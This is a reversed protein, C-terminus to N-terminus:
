DQEQGVAEASPPLGQEARIRDAEAYVADIATANAGVNRYEVLFAWGNVLLTLTALAAHIEWRWRHMQAGLGAAAAAIPVLMAALAVPFTRRKLERTLKPWPEGPLGYALAVEKVWRGTGLFYIFILCHVALPGLIVTFLGLFYHAVYLGEGADAAGRLKSVVGVAFTVVLAAANLSALIVFIRKM